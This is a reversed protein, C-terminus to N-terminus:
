ENLKADFDSNAQRVKDAVTTASAKSSGRGIAQTARSGLKEKTTKLDKQTLKEQHLNRLATQFLKNKAPIPDGVARCGVIIKTIEKDLAARNKFQKSGRKIDDINGKGFVDEFDPGLAAIQSDFWTTAENEARQTNQATLTANVKELKSIRALLTDGVKNIASIVGEDYKEKDLGCEYPKDAEETKKPAPEEAKRGTEKGSPANAELMDLAAELDEISSFKEVQEQTLGVKEIREALEDDIEIVEDTEDQQEVDEVEDKKEGTDTKEDAVKTKTQEPKEKKDDSYATQGVSNEADGALKKDFDQNSKKVKEPITKTEKETKQTKVETETNVDTKAKEGATNKQEKAM